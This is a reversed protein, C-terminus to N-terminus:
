EVRVAWPWPDLEARVTANAPPLEFVVRQTATRYLRELADRYAAPCDGEVQVEVERAPTWRFELVWRDDERVVEGAAQVEAGGELAVHCAPGHVGCETYRSTRHLMGEYRQGTWMIVGAVTEGGTVRCPAVMDPRQWRSEL